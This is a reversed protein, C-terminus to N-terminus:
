TRSYFSSSLVPDVTPITKRQIASRTAAPAFGASARSLASSAVSSASSEISRSRSRRTSSIKSSTSASPRTVGASATPDEIREGDVVRGEAGDDALGYALAGRDRGAGSRVRPGLSRVTALRGTLLVGALRPRGDFVRASGGGGVTRARGRVLARTVRGRVPVGLVRAAVGPRGVPLGGYRLVREFGGLLVAPDPLRNAVVLVDRGFQERAVFRGRAFQEVVGLRAPRDALVVPDPEGNECIRDEALFQERVRVPVFRIGSRLRRDRAPTNRVGHRRVTRSM